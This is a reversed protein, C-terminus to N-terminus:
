KLLGEYAQQSLLGPAWDSLIGTGESPTGPRPAGARAREPVLSLVLSM